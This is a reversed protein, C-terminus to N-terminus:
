KGRRLNELHEAARDLAEEVGDMASELSELKNDLDEYGILLASIDQARALRRSERVEELTALSATPTFDTLALSLKDKAAGETEMYQEASVSEDAGRVIKYHLEHLEGFFKEQPFMQQFEAQKLGDDLSEPSPLGLRAIRKDFAAVRERMDEEFAERCEALSIDTGQAVTAAIASSARAYSFSSSEIGHAVLWEERAGGVSIGNDFYKVFLQLTASLLVRGLLGSVRPNHSDRHYAANRYSHGIRLVAADKETILGLERAVSLKHKYDRRIKERREPDYKPRMVAALAAQRDFEKVCIDYLLTDAISDSLILAAKARVASTTELLNRVLELQETLLRLRELNTKPM